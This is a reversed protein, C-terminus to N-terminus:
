LMSPRTPGESQVAEHFHVPTSGRRWGAPRRVVASPPARRESAAAATSWHNLQRTGGHRNYNQLGTFHLPHLEEVTPKKDMREESGGTHRRAEGSPFASGCEM